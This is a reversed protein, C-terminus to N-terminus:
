SRRGDGGFTLPFGRSRCIVVGHIMVFHIMAFMTVIHDEVILTHDHVCIVIAERLITRSNALIVLKFNLHPAPIGRTPWTNNIAITLVFNMDLRAATDFDLQDIVIGDTM